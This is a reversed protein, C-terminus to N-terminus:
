NARWWASSNGMVSLLPKLLTYVVPAERPPPIYNEPSGEIEIPGVKIREFEQAKSELLNENSLIHLAQEIVAHKLRVPTTGEPIIVSGGYRPDIMKANVRPWALEQDFSAMRGVYSKVDLMRTATVLAKAQDEPTATDWMETDIRNEIYAVAEELTVYSNTGVVLAM